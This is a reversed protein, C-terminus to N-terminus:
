EIICSIYLIIYATNPVNMNFPFNYHYLEYLFSHISDRYFIKQAHVHIFIYLYIVYIKYLIYGHKIRFINM